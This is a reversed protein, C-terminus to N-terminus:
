GGALDRACQVARELHNAHDWEPPHRDIAHWCLAVVALAAFAIVVYLSERKKV